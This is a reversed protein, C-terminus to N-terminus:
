RVASRFAVAPSSGYASTFASNFETGNRIEGLLKRYSKVSKMLRDVFVYSVIASDQPPLRNNLFDDPKVRNLKKATDRWEIVRKDKPALRAVIARGTGTAFWDPVEGIETTALAAIQEMALAAMSYSSKGEVITAYADIGERRWHGRLTRPLERSEVMKGFEAYDYHRDLVFVTMGGKILKQNSPIALAARLKPLMPECEDAIAKLSKESRAGSWRLEQQTITNQEIGPLGLKWNAAAKEIRAKALEEYSLNKVQSASIVSELDASPTEGDFPAGNNLWAEFLKITAEPLPDEGLPMQEGDATGRLKGILLSMSAAQAPVRLTGSNGGQQIGEFTQLNLGARGGDNGHCGICQDVLVPAIQNTFSVGEADGVKPPLNNAAFKIGRAELLNKSKNVSTMLTVAARAVGADKSTQLPVLTSEIERILEASEENKKARYYRSAQQLKTQLQTVTARQAADVQQTQMRPRQAVTATGFILGHLVVLTCFRLLFSTM